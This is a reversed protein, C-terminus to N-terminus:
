RQLNATGNTGLLLTVPRVPDCILRDAASVSYGRSCYGHLEPSEVAARFDSGKWRREMVVNDGM